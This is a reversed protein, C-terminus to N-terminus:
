VRKGAAAPYSRVTPFQSWQEGDLDRGGSKPRIGGWQKFFFAISNDVCQDRIERVWDADM